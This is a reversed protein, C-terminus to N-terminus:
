QNMGVHMCIYMYVYICIYMYVYVYVYVYVCVYTYTYTYPYIHAHPINTSTLTPPPTDGAIQQAAEGLTETGDRERVAHISVASYANHSHLGAAKWFRQLSLGHCAEVEACVDEDVDEVIAVMAQGATGPVASFGLIWYRIFNLVLVHM